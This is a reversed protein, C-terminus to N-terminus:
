IGEEDVDEIDQNILLNSSIRRVKDKKGFVPLKGDGNNLNEKEVPDTPVVLLIGDAIDYNSPLNELKYKEDRQNSEKVEGKFCARLKNRNCILFVIIGFLFSGIVISVVSAIIIAMNSDSPSQSNVGQELSSEFTSSDDSTVYSMTVYDASIISYTKTVESLERCDRCLMRTTSPIVEMMVGKVSQIITLSVSSDM